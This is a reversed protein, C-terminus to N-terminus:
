KVIMLGIGDTEIRVVQMTLWPAEMSNPLDQRQVNVSAGM